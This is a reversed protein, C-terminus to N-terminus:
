AARLYDSITLLWRTYARSMLGDPTLRGMLLSGPRDTLQTGAARVARNARKSRTREYRRLTEPVDGHADRLAVTLAWADELAQNAGQAQTPPMTHAADGVLTCHGAGWSRRVPQRHHPFADVPEDAVADLLEPVPSAWDGFRRRLEATSPESPADRIDFWWQLLGEGAPMLGCMGERGVIVLGERGSTVGIPVPALGQWTTWGSPVTPDGGWVTDRVASRHGDAGIVADASATSGDAFEVRRGDGSVRVAAKGFVPDPQGDALRELLRRRPLSVHPRGFRRAARAVDVRTTRRGDATRQELVDIPAGVGDLSVGLEDLIGTGNSWLTVAAGGTRPAPAREYVEVEHGAARLGRAAALGGVGAGIVILKM